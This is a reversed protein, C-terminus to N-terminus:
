GFVKTCLSFLEDINELQEIHKMLEILQNQQRDSFVSDTLRLFKHQLADETLPKNPGGEAIDIREEYVRGEDDTIQIVAPMITPYDRDLEISHVVFVKDAFARIEPNALLAESFVSDDAKQQYAWVGLAYPISFKASLINHYDQSALTAARSYTLVKVQKIREAALRTKVMAQSFADIPAHAYRCFAYPKFYNREIDWIGDASPLLEDSNWDSGVVKTFVHRINHQPALHGSKMLAMVKIGAEIAHGAYINRVLKGDLAAEWMTPLVFTASLNVGEVFQEEAVQDVLCAAAAAGLTGWTGHAHAEPLLTSARGFRSCAEYSKILTELFQKGSYNKRNQAYTLLVPVIHAAPHGKSYQNGEDMETAVCATGHVLAAHYLSMRHSSAILGYNGATQGALLDALQITSQQQMGAAMAGITDMFVLKAAHITDQQFDDWTTRYLFSALREM